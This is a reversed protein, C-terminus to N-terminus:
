GSSAPQTTRAAAPFLQPDELAQRVAEKLEAGHLNKALIRGDPGILFTSPIARVKYVTGANVGALLNGAFGHTWVLGKQKIYEEAAEATQDCSLGILQFRGDSGFTQHIDKIAPMEALCPGCWTAWYDLLILKGAYDGLRLEDGSGAIRQVTFNPALDGVKLAEFLEATITGLDLPNNPRRDPAEPVIVPMRVIGTEAGLHGENVTLELEYKGPLVDEIHFRGDKDLHSGFSRWDLSDKLELYPVHIMVPHNKTWDVPTEPTGDIAVRGIVPRGKGGIQVRATQNPKVDVREQWGWVPFGHSAAANDIVRWVSGPGPVVRDFTFRGQQDTLTTYGYGFNYTRGERQFLAPSFEVQQNPAPLGGIQVEGEIKGWPQLVLKGSKAFEDFFAHTYGADSFAVLRFKESPPTFTFRGDTGAKVTPVNARRDFQGAQMLFGMERTDIVVDAGAAPKGDPLMVLGYLPEEGCTLAFDFTQSGESSRFARSEFTRYGPSEIRMWLAEFPEDFRMTYRDGTTEVSENEAWYIEERGEIPRGQVLRFKPLPQGTEADSVRGTIVLQPHLTIVQERDAATLPINRSSMYGFKGAGYIVVDKPAGKWEFRGDKDTNVQFHISRHGRWSDVGFFAGVVPKGEIDVVKGRVVSGPETLQVEVSQTHEEVHVDVIQPAFGEAQVTVSSPGCDCNELTFEGRENTTATPPRGFRDDGIFVQAGKVPRGAADTVRGTLMTGKTLVITSDLDRSLIGGRGRYRPHAVSLHIGGLNRPVVDLRWRGQSDTNLEGLAFSHDTGDYETPPGHVRVVAGEIPHGAQDKVIGGVTTGPDFRLEKESPLEVPRRQDKWVIHIPVLKAKRATLEFYGIHANPSYDITAVGDKGTAVTGKQNQGDFRGRYEISVGEMPENTEASVARLTLKGAMTQDEPKGADSAKTTDCRRSKM